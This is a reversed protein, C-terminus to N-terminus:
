GLLVVASSTIAAATLGGGVWLAITRPAIAVVLGIKFITNAIAACLLGITATRLVLDTQTLRGISLTVADVDTLGGIASLLYFAEGSVRANAFALAIMVVALILAATLAGTLDLPNGPAIDVHAPEGSHAKWCIAAAALTVIALTALFAAAQIALEINMIGAFIAIRAPMIASALLTGAAFARDSTPNQRAARAFALAVATSSVIAGSIATFALGRGPGLLRVAVYGLFSLGCILVVLAWLEFPNLADYPGIARNPLWPLIVVSILLFRLAARLEEASLRSVFSHLPKKLSLVIAAIVAAGAAQLPFGSTAFAGLLFALVTAIGTTASRNNDAQADLWYGIAMLLGVALLGGAVSAWRVDVPMAGAVGGALGILGVTRFGAVRTHEQATREHWAREIGILMGIALSLGLTMALEIEATM